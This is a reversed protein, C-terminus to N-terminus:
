HRVKNLFLSNMVSVNLVFIIKVSFSTSYSKYKLNTYYNDALHSFFPSAGFSYGNQNVEMKPDM